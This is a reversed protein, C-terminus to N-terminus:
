FSVSLILAMAALIGARIYASGSDLCKMTFELQTGDDMEHLQDINAEVMAATM